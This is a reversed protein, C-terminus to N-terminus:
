SQISSEIQLEEPVDVPSDGFTQMLTIEGNRSEKYFDMAEGCTGPFVLYSVISTM